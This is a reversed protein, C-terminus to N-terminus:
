PCLGTLLTFQMHQHVNSFVPPVVVWGAAVVGTSVIPEKQNPEPQGASMLGLQNHYSDLSVDCMM